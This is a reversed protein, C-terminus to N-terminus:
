AAPAVVQADANAVHRSAEPDPQAAHEGHFIARCRFLISGEIPRPQAADFAPGGDLPMELQLARTGAAPEFLQGDNTGTHVFLPVTAEYLKRMIRIATKEVASIKPPRRRSRRRKPSATKM